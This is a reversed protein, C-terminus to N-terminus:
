QCTGAEITDVNYLPNVANNVILSLPVGNYAIQADNITNSKFSVNATCNYEVATGTNKITNAALFPGPKAQAGGNLFFAAYHTDSIRNSKATSGERTEIGIQANAVDNNNITMGPAQFMYADADVIGIEVGTVVNHAITGQVTQALIGFSNSFATHLANNQLNVTLTPPTQNSYADIGNESFDHISTGTVAITEGLGSGNEIWIGAGCFPQNGNQNRVTSDRVAGSTGSGYFIGAMAFAGANCSAGAGDVTIDLINVNGSFIGPIVVVQAAIPTGTISSTVNVQLGGGVAPDGAPVVITPRDQNNFSVGKLTLPQGIAVQEPYTGPCVFITSGPPVVSVATQITLFKKPGQLCGGVQYNAAHAATTAILALILILPTKLM